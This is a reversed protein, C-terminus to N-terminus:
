DRKKQDNGNIKARGSSFTSSHNKFRIYNEAFDPHQDVFQCLQDYTIRGTDEQLSQFLGGLEINEVGLMIELITALDKETVSGDEENQYMQFALKLNEKTEATQCVTSLAIVYHRYDIHGDEQDFMTHLQRLIDSVPLGLIQAFDEVSLLQGQLKRAKTAKEKLVSANSGTKLGLRSVLQNFELLCSFNCIGLPGNSMIVHRDDFSLDILPVDLAKAMLKRVNNAFLSPNEKEEQSPTYVPLYELEFSNHLQCMSLWVLTPLGPAHWTWSITDLKNAYRLVAPQVPLGPIFAGAKFLILGARNSCTGEPYIILQPWPERSTARHKIEEVTRKRSDQDARFVYVPRLYQIISKWIPVSKASEKTVFSCLTTSVTIADFFASHPAMVLISAESPDARQGKVKVWHFGCFFWMARTSMQFCLDIIRIWLTKPEVVTESRSWLGILAFVWALMMSSAFLLLRVPFVTLSMVGIQIKQATTLNLELIFPNQLIRSPRSNSSKM